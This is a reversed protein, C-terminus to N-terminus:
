SNFVPFMVFITRQSFRSTGSQSLHLYKCDAMLGLGMSLVITVVLSGESSGPILGGVLSYIPGPVHGRICIYCLITKDPRLPLPHV